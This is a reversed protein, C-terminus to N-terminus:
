RAQARWPAEVYDLYAFVSRLYHEWAGALGRRANGVAATGGEAHGAEAQARRVLALRQEELALERGAFRAEARLRSARVPFERILVARREEAREVRRRDEALRMLESSLVMTASVSVAFGDAGAPYSAALEARPRGDIVGARATVGVGGSVYTGAVALGQVTGYVLDRDREARAREVDLQALRYASTHALRPEPLVFRLPVYTAVPDLGLAAAERRRDALLRRGEELRLRAAELRLRALAPGPSGGAAGRALTADPEGRAGATVTGPVAATAGRESVAEAAALEATADAVALQARVVRSQVDLAHLVGRRRAAAVDASARVLAARENLHAVADYSYGVTAGLYVGASWAPARGPGPVGGLAVEGPVLTGFGLTPSATVSVDMGHLPSLARERLALEREAEAVSPDVYALADLPTAQALALLPPWAGTLTLLVLGLARGSVSRAHRVAGRRSM